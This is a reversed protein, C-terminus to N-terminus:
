ALGGSIKIPENCNKSFGQLANSPGTQAEAQPALVIMAAVAAAAVANRLGVKSM